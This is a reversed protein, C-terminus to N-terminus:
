DWGELGQPVAELLGGLILKGSMQPSPPARAHQKSPSESKESGAVPSLREEVECKQRFM